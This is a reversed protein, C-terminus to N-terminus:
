GFPRDGSDITGYCLNIRYNVIVLPRYWPNRPKDMLGGKVSKSPLRSDTRVTASVPLRAHPYRPGTFPCCRHFDRNAQTLGVATYNIKRRRDTDIM